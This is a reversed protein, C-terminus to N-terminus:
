RYVLSFEQWVRRLIPGIPCILVGLGKQTDSRVLLFYQLVVQRKLIHGFVVTGRPTIVQHFWIAFPSVVSRGIEELDVVFLSFIAECVLNLVHWVFSM